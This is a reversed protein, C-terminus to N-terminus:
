REFPREALVKYMKFSVQSRIEQEPEACAEGEWLREVKRVVVEM